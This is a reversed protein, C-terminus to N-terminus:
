KTPPQSVDEGFWQNSFKSLTGDDHMAQIATNLAAVLTDIPLTHSKDVAVSDQEDFTTGLITVPIGAAINQDVVTKATSYAQFDKRGAQISEACNQDTTLEVVKMGAPPQVLWADKPVSNPDTPDNKAWADYDTGVGVCIPQGALQDFSTIGSDNAVAVVAPVYYYPTTFDFVKQRGSLIAMSGVSIDWKDAWNGAVIVAWDPTVFCTEVGLRKGLEIATDVDFGQLEPATLTDSPCKTNAARKGQTNLSSQPAYDADTSVLLYGRSKIQELLDAPQAPTAAGGCASLVLAAAVVLLSLPYLKKM